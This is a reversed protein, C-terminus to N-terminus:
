LNRLNDLNSLNSLNSLSLGLLWLGVALVALVVGAAARRRDGTGARLARVGVVAAVLAAPIALPYLSTLLALGLWEVPGSGPLLVLVLGVEGAFALLGAALALTPSRSWDAPTTEEPPAESM